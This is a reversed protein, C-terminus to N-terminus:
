LARLLHEVEALLCQALVDLGDAQEVGLGLVDDGGRADQDVLM